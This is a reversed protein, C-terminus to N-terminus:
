TEDKPIRIVAKICRVEKDQFRERWKEITKPLKEQDELETTFYRVIEDSLFAAWLQGKEGRMIIGETFTYLGRVGGHIIRAILTDENESEGTAQMCDMMPNFHQGTISHLRQLDIEDLQGNLFVSIPKWVYHGTFTAGMGHFAGSGSEEIAIERSRARIARRFTLECFKGNPDLVRAYALDPSVIRATGNIRGMHAGNWVDIEFTFGSSGVERIVLQGGHGAYGSQINWTGWWLPVHLGAHVQMTTSDSLASKLAAELRGQLLARLEGKETTGASSYAIVRRGRLDFPLAEPEGYATNQILLIRDWGLQSVAYGLELLVNPNPTKREKSDANIVSVDAVFVDAAAIKGFITDTIAPSGGVGSTDRDLVPEIKTAEDKKIAKLARELADEILNRNFKADLDSQWSYFVIRKM